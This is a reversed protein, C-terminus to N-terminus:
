KISVNFVFYQWVVYKRKFNVVFVFLLYYYITNQQM